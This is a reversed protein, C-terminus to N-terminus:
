LFRIDLSIGNSSPSLCIQTLWLRHKSYVSYTAQKPHSRFKSIHTPCTLVCYFKCNSDLGDRINRACTFGHHVRGICPNLLDSYDSVLRVRVGDAKMVFHGRVLFDVPGNCNSVIGTEELEKMLDAAAKEMCRPPRRADTGYKGRM